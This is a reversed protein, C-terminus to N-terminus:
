HAATGELVGQCPAPATAYKLWQMAWCSHASLVSAELTSQERCVASLRCVPAHKQLSCASVAAHQQAGASRWVAATAQAATDSIGCSDFQCAAALPCASAFLCSGTQLTQLKKSTWFLMATLQVSPAIAPSVHWVAAVQWEWKCIDLCHRGYRKRVHLCPQLRAMHEALTIWLLCFLLGSEAQAQQTSITRCQFKVCGAFFWVDRSLSVSLDTCVQHAACDLQCSQLQTDWSGTVAICDIRNM